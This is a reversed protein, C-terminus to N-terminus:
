IVRGFRLVSMTAGVLLLLAAGAALLGTIEVQKPELTWQLDISGYVAGLGQEDSASFYEGGTTDAVKRLMQEDLATAIQFGDVELVTGEPRGLGIPYVKVGAASAVEAVDVPDPSATNEGDSLLVVAASSFYGLDQGQAELGGDQDLQVPKGAIASLSTQIGRGLATGGQPTLRDIAALVDAQVTTPPQTVLGSDGFAVVGIRISSPQAEVFRYAAAKAAELRTPSMDKAAMSTSVDFALIVTGERRPDAITAQPRATAVVLLTLAGLVLAPVLHRRRGRYAPGSPVLGQASLQARRAARRRLLRRYEIVLAPVALLGLLALPWAFSM